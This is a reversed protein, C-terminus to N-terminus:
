KLLSMQQSFVMSRCVTNYYYNLKFIDAVVKLAEMLHVPVPFKYQARNHRTNLKHHIILNLVLM